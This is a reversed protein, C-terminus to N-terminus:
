QRKNRRSLSLKAIPTPCLKWDVSIVLEKEPAEHM